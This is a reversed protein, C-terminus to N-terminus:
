DDLARGALVARILGEPFGRTYLFRAQRQWEARELPLTSGYKKNRAHECLAIWDAGEDLERRSCEIGRERLDAVIRTPGFGRARRAEIYAERFRQDSQMGAATLREIARVAVDAAFGKRAM